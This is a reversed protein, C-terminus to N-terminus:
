HQKQQQKESWYKLQKNGQRAKNCQSHDGTYHQIITTIMAIRTEKRTDILFNQDNLILYLIQQRNQIHEHPLPSWKIERKIRNININYM